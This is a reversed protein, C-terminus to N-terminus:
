ERLNVEIASEKIIYKPKYSMTSLRVRFEKGTKNDTFNVQFKWDIDSNKAYMKDVAQKIEGSTKALELQAEGAGRNGGVTNSMKTALSVPTKVKGIKLITINEFGYKKLKKPVRKELAKIVVNSLDGKTVKQTYEGEYKEKVELTKKGKPAVQAILNFTLFLIVITSTLKLNKM